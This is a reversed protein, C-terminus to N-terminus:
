YPNWSLYIIKDVINKNWFNFLKKLTKITDKLSTINNEYFIVHEIYNVYFWIANCALKRTQFDRYCQLSFLPIETVAYAFPQHGGLGSFLEGDKLTAM